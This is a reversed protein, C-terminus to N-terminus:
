KQTGNAPKSPTSRGPGFRYTYSSVTGSLALGSIDLCAACFPWRAFEFRQGGPYSRTALKGVEVGTLMRYRDAPSQDTGPEIGQQFLNTQHSRSFLTAHCTTKLSVAVVGPGVDCQGFVYVSAFCFAELM